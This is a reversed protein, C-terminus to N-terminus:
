KQEGYFSDVLAKLGQMNYVSSPNWHAPFLSRYDRHEYREDILLVMGRDEESRILRGAAQLVKIMGPYRYAFAFGDQNHNRYFEKIRDREFSLGPMGVGVVAVGTLYDGVLDIGEGFVGGLVAFGIVGQMPSCHDRSHGADAADPASTFGELFREREADDMSREQVMTTFESNEPVSFLEVVKHMYDYSPFFFLYKGGPRVFKSLIAGIDARTRERNKYLTSVNGITVVGLNQEDYCSGISCCPVNEDLGFINKFYPFPRLTASFFVTCISLGATEKIKGAPNLCFQKIIFDSKEGLRGEKKGASKGASKGAITKEMYYLWNENFFDAIKIFFLLDFYLETLLPYEGISQGSQLAAEVANTVRYVEGMLEEDVENNQSVRGTLEKKLANCYAFLKRLSKLVKPLVGKLEKKVKRILDLRISASYMSRARDPLNHAEDVLFLYQKKQSQKEGPEGFFRRLYVRPDFIYNYDLIIVDAFLSLALSYEFPCLRYKGALESVRERSFDDELFVEELGEGLRDFFGRAYECEDPSCKFEYNICIKEKATLCVSKVTMGAARIDRLAGEAMQKGTSRSTAYFIKQVLEQGMAKCGPFLVSMTKGLGTAAELLLHTGDRVAKFVQVAAERQGQRYDGYPFDLERASSNRKELHDACKLSWYRFRELLELFFAGGDSGTYDDRLSIIEKTMRSAYTLQCIVRSQKTKQLHMFAYCYLQARHTIQVSDQLETIKLEKLALEDLPLATTKIEEIIDLDEERYVGDMRGEIEVICDDYEHTYSIEVEKQYGEPRSKQITKHLKIGALHADKEGRGSSFELDGSFLYRQILDGVSIHFVRKM